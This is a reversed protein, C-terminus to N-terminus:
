PHTEIQFYNGGPDRGIATHEIKTATLAVQQAM